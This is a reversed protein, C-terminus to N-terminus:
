IIIMSTGKTTNEIDLKIADIESEKDSSNDEHSSVDIVKNVKFFAEM